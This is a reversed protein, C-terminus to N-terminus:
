KFRRLASQPVFWAGPRGVPSDLFQAQMGDSGRIWGCVRYRPCEGVVLVYYHDVNDGERLILRGDELRSGRVQVSEGVDAGKFSDLTCPWYVGRFKCYAMEYCAGDIGIDWSRDELGHKNEYGHVIGRIDRRSGVCAAVCLEMESLEVLNSMLV